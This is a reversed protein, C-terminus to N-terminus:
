ISQGCSFRAYEVHFPGRFRKRNRLIAYQELIDGTRKPTKEGSASFLSFSASSCNWWIGLWYRPRGWGAESVLNGSGGCHAFFLERRDLSRPRVVFSWRSIQCEEKAESRGSDEEV